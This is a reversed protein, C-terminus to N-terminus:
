KLANDKRDRAVGSTTWPRPHRITRTAPSTPGQRLVGYFARGREDLLLRDFYESLFAQGIRPPALLPDWGSIPVDADLSYLGTKGIWCSPVRVVGLSLPGNPTPVTKVVRSPSLDLSHAM